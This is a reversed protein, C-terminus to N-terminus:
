HASYIFSAAPFPAPLAGYKAAVDIVPQIQAPDLRESYPARNMRLAIGNLRECFQDAANFAEAGTDIPITALRIPAVNQANGAAPHITFVLTFGVVAIRFAQTLALSVIRLTSGRTIYTGRVAAGIAGYPV